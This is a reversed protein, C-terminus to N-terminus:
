QPQSAIQILWNQLSNQLQVLMMVSSWRQFPIWHWNGGQKSQPSHGEMLGATKKRQFDFLALCEVDLHINVVDYGCLDLVVMLKLLIM